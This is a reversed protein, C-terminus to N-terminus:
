SIMPIFITKKLLNKLAQLEFVERYKLLRYAELSKNVKRSVLYNRKKNRVIFHLFLGGSALRELLFLMLKPFYFRRM